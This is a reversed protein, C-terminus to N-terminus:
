LVNENECLYNRYKPLDSIFNCYLECEFCYIDTEEFDMRLRKAMEAQHAISAIMVYVPTGAYKEIFDEYGIINIKYKQGGRLSQDILVSPVIHNKLFLHLVWDANNGAGYIIVERPEEALRKRFEEFENKMRSIQIINM